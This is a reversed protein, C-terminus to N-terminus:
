VILDNPDGLWKINFYSFFYQYSSFFAYIKKFKSQRTILTEVAM